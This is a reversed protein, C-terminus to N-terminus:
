YTFEYGASRRKCSAIRKFGVIDNQLADVRYFIGAINRSGCYAKNFLKTSIARGVSEAILSVSNIVNAFM